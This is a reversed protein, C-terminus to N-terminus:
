TFNDRYVLSRCQREYVDKFPAMQITAQYNNYSFEVQGIHENWSGQCEMGVAQLM